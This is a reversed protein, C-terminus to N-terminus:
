RRESFIGEVARTAEVVVVRRRPHGQALLKPKKGRLRGEAKTVNMGECTRM